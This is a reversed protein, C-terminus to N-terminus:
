LSACGAHIEYKIALRERDSVFYLTAFRAAVPVLTSRAFDDLTRRDSESHIHHDEIEVILSTDSEYRMRSKGQVATRIAEFTQALLHEHCVAEPWTEQVHGSTKDKKLKPGTVPARGHEDLHLMRLHNQYGDFSQTIQLHHLVRHTSAEFLRADYSQNGIAPQFQVDSRGRYFADAFLALPWIEEMFQKVLDGKKLRVARKGEITNSFSRHLNDVWDRLEAQTRRREFDTKTLTPIM